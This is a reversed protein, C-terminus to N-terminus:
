NGDMNMICKSNFQHFSGNSVAENVTSSHKLIEEVVFITKSARMAETTHLIKYFTSFQFPISIDQIWRTM